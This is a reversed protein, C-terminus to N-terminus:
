FRDQSVLHPIHDVCVFMSVCVCVDVRVCVDVCMGGCASAFVFLPLCVDM